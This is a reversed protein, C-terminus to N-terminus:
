PSSPDGCDCDYCKSGDRREYDVLGGRRDLEVDCCDLIVEKLKKRGRQVRAKMGSLSLGAERAADKQTLGDLETLAVAQRYPGPLENLLPVLCRAFEASAEHLPDTATDDERALGGAEDIGEALKRLGRADAARKRHHDIVANRAIRYIWGAISGVDKLRAVNAQIRLFVEQLIDEADHVTDVRRRIYALLGEHMERWVRETEVGHTMGQRGTVASGAASM